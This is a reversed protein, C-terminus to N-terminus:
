VDSFIRALLFWISIDWPRTYRSTINRIRGTIATDPTPIFPTKNSFDRAGNTNGLGGYGLVRAM